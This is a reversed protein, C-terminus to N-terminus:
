TLRLLTKSLFNTLLYLKGPGVPAMTTLIERLMTSVLGPSMTMELGPAQLMTVETFFRGWMLLRTDTNRLFSHFQPSTAGLTELTPSWTLSTLQTLAAVGM